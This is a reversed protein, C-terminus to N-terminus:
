SPSLSDGHTMGIGQGGRRPGNEMHAVCVSVGQKSRPMQRSRGATSVVLRMARCVDCRVTSFQVAYCQVAYCLVAGYVFCLMAGTEGAGVWTYHPHHTTHPSGHCSVKGDHRPRQWKSPWTTLRALGYANVNELLAKREDGQKVLPVGIEPSTVELIECPKVSFFFLVQTRAILLSGRRVVREGGVGTV